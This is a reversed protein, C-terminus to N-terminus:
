TAVRALRQDRVTDAFVAGVIKIGEVIEEESVTAYPLRFHRRGGGAYVFADDARFRVGRNAAEIKAADLDIRDDVEVWLYYGGTPVKFDTWEGCYTRMADVAVDRRRRLARNLVEIQPNLMDRELYRAMIESLWQSVGLERRQAHVGEILQTPGCAWGIRLGPVVTKSFSHVQVVRGTTDMSLMSPPNPDGDYQLESYVADELVVLDHAEALELIRQRRDLPLVAGTPLNYTSITYLLRPRRGERRLQGLQRELNDILIGDDDIEMQRVDVGAQLMFRNAYPFTLAEILAVDGPNLFAAITMAIAETSGSALTFNETTLGPIGQREGVWKALEARLADGYGYEFATSSDALVDAALSLLEARPQVETPPQGADFSFRIPADVDGHMDVAAGMSYTRWDNTQATLLRYLSDDSQVM